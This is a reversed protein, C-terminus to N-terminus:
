YVDEGLVTNLIYLIRSEDRRVRPNVIARVRDVEQDRWQRVEEESMMTMNSGGAVAGVSM